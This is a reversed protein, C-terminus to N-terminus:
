LWICDEPPDLQFARTSGFAILCHFYRSFFHSMSGAKGYVRAVNDLLAQVRPKQSNCFASIAMMEQHQEEEASRSNSVEDGPEQM